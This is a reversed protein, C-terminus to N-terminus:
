VYHTYKTREPLAFQCSDQLIGKTTPGLRRDNGGDGRSLAIQFLGEGSKVICMPSLVDGIPRLDILFERLLGQDLYPFIYNQLPM